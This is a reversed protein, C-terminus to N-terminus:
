LGKTLSPSSGYASIGSSGLGSVMDFQLNCWDPVTGHKLFFEKTVGRLSLADSAGYFSGGMWNVCNEKVLPNFLKFDYIGKGFKEIFKEDRTLKLQEVQTELQKLERVLRPKLGPIMGTGGTLLISSALSKRTDIPCKSLSELIMVPISIGDLDDNQFWIEAAKERVIGDFTLFNGGDL